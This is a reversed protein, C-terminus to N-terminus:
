KRAFLENDHGRFRADVEKSEISPEQKALVVNM